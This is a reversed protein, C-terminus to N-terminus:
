GWLHIFHVFGIGEHQFNNRAFGGGSILVERVGRKVEHDITEDCRLIVFLDDVFNLLATQGVAVFENQQAASGDGKVMGVLVARFIYFSRVWEWLM